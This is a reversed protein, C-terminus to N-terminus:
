QNAHLYNELNHEMSRLEKLNQEQESIFKDGKEEEAVFKAYSELLGADLKDTKAFHGKVRAFAHVKNPHVRQVPVGYKQLINMVKNEYGGTPELV